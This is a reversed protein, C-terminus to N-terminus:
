NLLEDCSVGFIEALVKLEIDTVFRKGCEICERRRRIAVGEETPRSDIVKSDTDGCFPCDAYRSKRGPRKIRLSLIEAVDMIDFPFDYQYDSM